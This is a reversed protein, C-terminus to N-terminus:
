ENCVVGSEVLSKIYEKILVSMTTNNEKAYARFQEKLEENIRIEYRDNEM